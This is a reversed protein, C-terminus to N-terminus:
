TKRETGAVNQITLKESVIDLMEDTCFGVRNCSVVICLIVMSNLLKVSNQKSFIILEGELNLNCAFAWVSYSLHLGQLQFELNVYFYESKKILLKSM